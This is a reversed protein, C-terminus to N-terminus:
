SSNAAGTQEKWDWGNMREEIEGGRRNRRGTNHKVFRGEAETERVWGDPQGGETECAWAIARAINCDPEVSVLMWVCLCMCIRQVSVVSCLQSSRGSSECPNWNFLGLNSPFKQEQRQGYNQSKLWRNASTAYDSDPRNVVSIQKMQEWTITMSKVNQEREAGNCQNM